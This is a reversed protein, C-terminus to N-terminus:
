LVSVPHNKDVYFLLLKRVLDTPTTRDDETHPSADCSHSFHLKGHLTPGTDVFENPSVTPLPQSNKRRRTSHFLLSFLIGLLYNRSSSDPSKSVMLTKRNIQLLRRSSVVCKVRELEHFM